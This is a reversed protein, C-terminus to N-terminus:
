LNQKLFAAVKEQVNQPHFALFNDAIIEKTIDKKMYSLQLFKALKEIKLFFFINVLFRLKFSQTRNFHIKYGNIRERYNPFFNIIWKNKNLFDFYCNEKSFIPMLQVIEHAIYLNQRKKTFGIKSKGIILNLCIKDKINLDNKKRYVGLFSLLLVMLLRTLWTLNNKCIVFIDIDEDERANKMALSGSIGIFEVTPIFSLKKIIPL